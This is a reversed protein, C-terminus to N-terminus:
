MIDYPYNYHPMRHSSPDVVRTHKPLVDHLHKLNKM